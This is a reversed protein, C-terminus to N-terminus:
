QQGSNKKCARASPANAIPQLQEAFWDDVDLPTRRDVSDYAALVLGLTRLNDRGSTTLRETGSAVAALVESMPGAFADPIWAGPLTEAVATEEGSRGVRVRDPRGHPYDFLLGIEGVITGESGVVRLEARHLPTARDNHDASVTAFTSAFELVTMTRTEGVTAQGPSRSAWATLREPDGLLHRVADFYHISHYLFELRPAERLFTWQAFDTHTSVDFALREPKGIVGSELLEQVRRILPSWRMQQNVALPVGATEAADVIRVAEHLSLALPKQCLVAKGAGIAALAIEPQVDAPVAIDVVDVDSAILAEPSDYVMGVGFERATARARERDIDAIAAVDYGAARYAPLHGARVIAGAGIIGISTM